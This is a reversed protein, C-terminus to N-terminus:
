MEKISKDTGSLALLRLSLIRQSEQLESFERMLKLLEEDPKFNDRDASGTLPQITEKNEMGM